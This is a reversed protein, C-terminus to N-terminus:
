RSWTFTSYEDWKLKFLYVGGGTPESQVWPTYRFQMYAARDTVGFAVCEKKEGVRHRVTKEVKPADCDLIRFFYSSSSGSFNVPRGEWNRDNYRGIFTNIGCKIQTVFNHWATTDSCGMAKDLKELDTPYSTLQVISQEKQLTALIMRPNLSQSRPDCDGAAEMCAAIQAILNSARRETGCEYTPTGEEGTCNDWRPPTNSDPDTRTDNGAPNQAKPPEYLTDVGPTWIGYRRDNDNPNPADYFGEHTLTSVYFDKLFSNKDELFTQIANATRTVSAVADSPASLIMENDSIGLNTFDFGNYHLAKVSKLPTSNQTPPERFVQMTADTTNTSGSNICGARHTATATEDPVRITVLQTQNTSAQDTTCNVEGGFSGFDTKLWRSITLPCDSLRCGAGVTVTTSDQGNARVINAHNQSDDITLTTDVCNAPQSATAAPARELSFNTAFTESRFTDGSATITVAGDPDDCCGLRTVRARAPVVGIAGERRPFQEVQVCPGGGDITISATHGSTGAFVYEGFCFNVSERFGGTGPENM